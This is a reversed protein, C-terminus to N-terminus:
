GLGQLERHRKCRRVQVDPQVDPFAVLKSLWHNTWRNRSPEFGNAIKLSLCTFVMIDSADFVVTKGSLYPLATGTGAERSVLRLYGGFRCPETYIM